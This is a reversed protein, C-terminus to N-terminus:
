TFYSLIKLCKLLKACYILLTQCSHNCLFSSATLIKPINSSNESLEMLLLNYFNTKLPSDEVQDGIRAPIECPKITPAKTKKTHM